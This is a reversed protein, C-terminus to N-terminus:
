KNMSQLARFNFMMCGAVSGAYVTYGVLLRRARFKQFFTRPMFVARQKELTVTLEL